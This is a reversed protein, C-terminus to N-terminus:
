YEQMDDMSVKMGWKITRFCKCMWGGEGGGLFPFVTHHELPNIHFGVFLYFDLCGTEVRSGWWEQSM